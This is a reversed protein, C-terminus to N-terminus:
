SMAVFEKANRPGSLDIVAKVLLAASMISHSELAQYYFAM